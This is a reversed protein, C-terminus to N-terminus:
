GLMRRVIAANWQSLLQAAGTEIEERYQEYPAAAVVTRNRLADIVYCISHDHVADMVGSGCLVKFNIASLLEMGRNSLYDDGKHLYLCLSGVRPTIKTTDYVLLDPKSSVSIKGVRISSAFGKPLPKYNLNRLRLEPLVTDTLYQLADTVNEMDSDNNKSRPRSRLHQESDLKVIDPSEGLIIRKAPSHYAGYWNYFSHKTTKMRVIELRRQPTGTIYDALLSATISKSM